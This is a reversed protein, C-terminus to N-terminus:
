REGAIEDRRIYGRRQLKYKIYIEKNHTWAAIDSMIFNEKDFLINKHMDDYIEKAQEYTMNFNLATVETSNIIFDVPMKIKKGDEIIYATPQENM